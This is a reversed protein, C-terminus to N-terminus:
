APRPPWVPVVDKRESATRILYQRTPLPLRILRSALRKTTDGICDPPFRLPPKQDASKDLPSFGHPCFCTLSVPPTHLPSPRLPVPSRSTWRHSTHTICFAAVTSSTM